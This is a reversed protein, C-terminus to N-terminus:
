RGNRARFAAHRAAELPDLRDAASTEAPAAAAADAGGAAVAAAKKRLWDVWAAHGAGDLLLRALGQSLSDVQDDHAGNPFAAAEDVLEDPDFLGCERTPLLVNGAELFPAVANARAYKSETPTVPVIGGIEKQLTDIVATGNAKDEVLKASAQPWKRCLARFATLTDTFSLRKRVQDLVLVQVGRRALVTGVVFDSGKTDKFAMDWSQLVEDFGDVRYAGADDVTWPLTDYRRWWQRRWVNGSDPSPRGQYLSTFVRSGAQIRIAEWQEISRGRASQLWEGPARGLPDSQDKAPDHDALAPINVVRWRHGDEAAVLRGALDDEHWRTLIVIVPAGPALRTQAVSQWWNWVQDRYYQSEAQKADKFPDDIVLADVPRGTLGSGIGVAVVGGRHGALQWRRAAGNDRAVRLGLDLTGETGDNSTIWNRIDRSFGEALPQAYSAVAFRRDPRHKLGYLTGTKTVRESKGEQPPMSVILRADPTTFAWMIVEDVLDLAPTQVTRPYIAKALTGPTAAWDDSVPEARRRYRDAVLDAVGVNM